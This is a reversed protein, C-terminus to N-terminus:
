YDIEKGRLAGQARPFSEDKVSVKRGHYLWVTSLLPAKLLYSDPHFLGSPLDFLAAAGGMVYVCVCVHMCAHMCICAPDMCVYVGVYM